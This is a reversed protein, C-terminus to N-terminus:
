WGLYFLYILSLYVTLLHQPIGSLEGNIYLSVYSQLYEWDELMLLSNSGNKCHHQISNNAWIM